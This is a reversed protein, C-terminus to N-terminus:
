NQSRVMIFELKGSFNNSNIKIKKPLFFVSDVDTEFSSESSNGEIVFPNKEVGNFPMNSTVNSDNEVTITTTGFGSFDNVILSTVVKHITDSLILNLDYSEESSYKNSNLSYTFVNPTNIVVPLNEVLGYDVEPPGVCSLISFIPILLLYLKNM